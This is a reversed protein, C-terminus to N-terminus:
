GSSSSGSPVVNIYDELRENTYYGDGTRSVISNLTQRSIKVNETFVRHNGKMLELTDYAMLAAVLCFRRYGPVEYPISSIYRFTDSQEKEASEIMSELHELRPESGDLLRRPWFYRGEDMDKRVDRTINTKQLYRGFALAKKRDLEAGDKIAVLTTLYIGVTGAVYYCYEDLDDFTNIKSNNFKLMGQGMEVLCARGIERVQDELGFYSDRVIDLNDLLLRDHDEICAKRLFSLDPAESGMELSDLFEAMIRKKQDYELLSDEITDVYRALLYQIEIPGQKNTDLMPIVLAFSRSVANLIDRLTVM